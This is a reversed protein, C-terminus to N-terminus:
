FIFINLLFCSFTSIWYNCSFTWNITFTLRCRVILFTCIKWDQFVLVFLSAVSEFQFILISLLAVSQIGLISKTQIRSITCFFLPMHFFSKLNLNLTYFWLSYGLVFLFTLTVNPPLSHFTTTGKKFRGVQTISSSIRGLSQIEPTLAVYVLHFHTLVSMYLPFQSTCTLAGTPHWGTGICPLKADERHYGSGTYSRVSDRWLGAPAWGNVAWSRAGQGEEESWTELKLNNDGACWVFWDYCCLNKVSIYSNLKLM